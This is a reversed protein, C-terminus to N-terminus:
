LSALVCRFLHQVFNTTGSFPFDFDQQRHQRYNSSGSDGGGSGGGGSTTQTAFQHFTFSPVSHWYVLKFCSLFTELLESFNNTKTDVDPQNQPYYQFGTEVLSERACINKRSDPIM